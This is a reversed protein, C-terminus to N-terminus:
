IASRFQSKERRAQGPSTEVQFQHPCQFAFLDACADYKMNVNSHAYATNRESDPEKEGKEAAAGKEEKAKSHHPAGGGSSDGGSDTRREGVGSAERRNM